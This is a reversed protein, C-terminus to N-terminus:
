DHNKIREWLIDAEEATMDALKVGMSEAEKELLAFRRMFKETARTLAEEPEVGVKRSVNVVSFLLDGMEDFVKEKDARKHVEYLENLEETVKAFAEEDTPFDFNAKGSKKGVKNARMLAPLMSPVAYMEDALTTRQKEVKKIKDWNELVKESTDANVDGFVHPHRLVLKRCIGDAVDDMTFKGEEEGIEAHFAVQLLLDGLEECMLVPDDKDISEVVEYCEEILDRRISAHTQERDWPCGGEGRLIKMIGRLDEFTYREKNVYISAKENM